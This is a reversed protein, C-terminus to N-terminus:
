IHTHTERKVSIFAYSYSSGSEDYFKQSFINRWNLLLQNSNNDNCSNKLNLVKYCDQISRYSLEM